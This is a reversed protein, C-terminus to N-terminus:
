TRVKITTNKFCDIFGQMLDTMQFVGSLMLKVRLPNESLKINDPDYTTLIVSLTTGKQKQQSDYHISQSFHRQSQSITCM